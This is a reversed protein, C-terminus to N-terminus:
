PLIYADSTKPIYITTIRPRTIIATRPVDVKAATKDIDDYIWATLVDVTMGNPGTVPVLANYRNGFHSAGKLRAPAYPLRALIQQAIMDAHEKGAGLVSQFVVAKDQGRSHSVNLSYAVLKRYVDAYSAKDANLVPNDPMHKIVVSENLHEWETLRPQVGSIREQATTSLPPLYVGGTHRPIVPECYCRCNPFEGAHGVMKDLTPPADWSVFRGEMARHSPRVDGDRATRWIYGTSGVSQARASTLATGAKSVETRAITRARSMTTNGIRQYHRALDEARSGSILGHEAIAAIRQATQSPLSTILATNGTIAEQVARGVGPSALLRRMELGMREAQRFFMGENHKNVASVMNAASQRAWPEVVQAYQHLAREVDAPSGGSQILRQVQGAVSRLQREYRREAAMSPRFMDQDAMRAAIDGWEWAM